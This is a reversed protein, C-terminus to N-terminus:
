LIKEMYVVNAEFGDRYKRVMRGKNQFGCKKEWFGITDPHIGSDCRLKTLGNEKAFREAEKFLLSGIGKKRHNPDVFLQYVEGTRNQNKLDGLLCFGLVSGNSEAVFIKAYDTKSTQM